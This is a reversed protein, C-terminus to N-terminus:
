TALDKHSYGRARLELYVPVLIELIQPPAGSRKTAIHNSMHEAVTPTDYGKSTLVEDIAAYFQPNSQCLRRVSYGHLNALPMHNKETLKELLIQGLWRPNQANLMFEPDRWPGGPLRYHFNNVERVGINKLDPEILKPQGPVIIVTSAALGPSDGNNIKHAAAILARDYKPLPPLNLM